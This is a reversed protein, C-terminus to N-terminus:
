EDESPPIKEWLEPQVLRYGAAILHNRKISDTLKGNLFSMKHQYAIKKNINENAYWKEKQILEQFSDDLTKKDM